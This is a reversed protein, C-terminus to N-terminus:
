WLDGLNGDTELDDVRTCKRLHVFANNLNWTMGSQSKIMVSDRYASDVKVIVCKQGVAADDSSISWSSMDKIVVCEDGPEFETETKDTM